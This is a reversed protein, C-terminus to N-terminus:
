KGFNYCPGTHAAFKLFDVWFYFVFFGKAFLQKNALNLMDIKGAKGWLELYMPLAISRICFKFHTVAQSFLNKYCSQVISKM